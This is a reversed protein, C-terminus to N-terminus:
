LALRVSLVLDGPNINLEKIVREVIHYVNLATRSPGSYLVVDGLVVEHKVYTRRNAM